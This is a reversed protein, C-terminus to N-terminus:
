IVYVYLHLYQQQILIAIFCHKHEQVYGFRLLETELLDKRPTTDDM